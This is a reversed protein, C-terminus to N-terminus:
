RGWIEIQPMLLPALLKGNAIWKSGYEFAYFGTAPDLTVAGVLQGWAHVEVLDVQHYSM